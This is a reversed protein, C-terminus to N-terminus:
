PKPHLETKYTRSVQLGWTSLSLSTDVIKYQLGIGIGSVNDALGSDANFRIFLNHNTWFQDSNLTFKM